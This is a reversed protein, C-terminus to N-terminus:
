LDDEGFYTLRKSFAIYDYKKFIYACTGSIIIHIKEGKNKCNRKIVIKIITKLNRFFRKIVEKRGFYEKENLLGNRYMYYYFGLRESEDDVISLTRANKRKHIVRSKGVIYAPGYYKILRMTYELDDGWIFYDKVPLGCKKIADMSILLSVFTANKISVMGYELNKYWHEYGNESLSLDIKPVNMFEGHEGFVSSAFFSVREKQANKLANLLEELASEHPITDDDMIWVWDLDCKLSAKIGEHFGGAGGINKPLKFYSLEDFFKQGKLMEYTGDTSNNDVVIIKSLTFTQKLLASICELLLEKRNYTVIVAGIKM